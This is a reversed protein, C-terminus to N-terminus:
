YVVYGSTSGVTICPINRKVSLNQDIVHAQFLLIICSAKQFLEMLYFFFIYFALDM